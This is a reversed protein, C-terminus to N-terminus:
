TSCFYNNFDIKLKNRSILKLYKRIILPKISFVRSVKVRNLFVAIGHVTFM